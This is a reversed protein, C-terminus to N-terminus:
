KQFLPEARENCPSFDPHDKFSKEDHTSILFLGPINGTIFRTFITKKYL